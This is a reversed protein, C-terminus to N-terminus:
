SQREKTQHISRVTKDRRFSSCLSYCRIAAEIRAVPFTKAELPPYNYIQKLFKEGFEETFVDDGVTESVFSAFERYKQNHQSIYFKTYNLREMEAIVCMNLESLSMQNEM